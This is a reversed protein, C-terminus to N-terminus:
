HQVIFMINQGNEASIFYLGEDWSGTAIRHEQQQVSVRHTLQGYINYVSLTVPEKFNSITVFDNAPNPVFQLKYQATATETIADPKSQPCWTSDTFNHLPMPITYATPTIPLTITGSDTYILTTHEYVAPPAVVSDCTGSGDPRLRGTVLNFNSGRTLGTFVIGGSPTEAINHITIDNFLRCWVSNGQTDTKFIYALSNGSSLSFYIGSIILEQARTVVIQEGLLFAGPIDYRKAWLVQGTSDLKLIYPNDFGNNNYNSLVFNGNAPTTEVDLPTLALGDHYTKSWNLVGGSSVSTINTSSVPTQNISRTGCIIIDQNPNVVVDTHFIKQISPIYNGAWQLVGSSGIRMLSYYFIFSSTDRVDSLTVLDGNAMAACHPYTYFENGTPRYANAWLTTGAENTKTCLIHKYPVTTLALRCDYISDNHRSLVFEGYPYLNPVPQWKRGWTTVGNSDQQFSYNDVSILNPNNMDAHVVTSNDPMVIMEIDVANNTSDPLQIEYYTAHQQAKSFTYFLLLLATCILRPTM